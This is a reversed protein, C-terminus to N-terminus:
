SCITKCKDKLKYCKKKKFFFVVDYRKNVKVHKDNNNTEYIYIYKKRNKKKKQGLFKM